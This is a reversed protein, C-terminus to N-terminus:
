SVTFSRIMALCGFAPAIAGAGFYDHETSINHAVDRGACNRSDLARCLRLSGDRM